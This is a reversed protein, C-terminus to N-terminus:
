EGATDYSFYEGDGKPSLYEQPESEKLLRAIPYIAVDDGKEEIFCLVPVIEETPAHKAMVIGVRNEFTMKYFIDLLGYPVPNYVENSFIHPVMDNQMIFPSTGQLFKLADETPFENDVETTEAM